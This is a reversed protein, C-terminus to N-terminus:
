VSNIHASVIHSSYCCPPYSQCVQWHMSQFLENLSCYCCPPPILVQCAVAFPPKLADRSRSSCSTHTHLCCGRASAGFIGTQFPQLSAACSAKGRPSSASQQCQKIQCVEQVRDLARIHDLTDLTPSLGGHLCFFQLAVTHQLLVATDPLQAASSTNTNM